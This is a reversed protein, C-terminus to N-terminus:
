ESIDFGCDDCICDDAPVHGGCDPCTSCLTMGMLAFEPDRCIYCRERYITPVTFHSTAILTQAPDDGPMPLYHRRQWGEAVQERLGPDSIAALVERINTM